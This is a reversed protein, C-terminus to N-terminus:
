TVCMGVLMYMYGKAHRRREGTRCALRSITKFRRDPAGSRCTFSQGLDHVLQPPYVQGTCLVEHASPRSSTPSSLRSTAGHRATATPTTPRVCRGAPPTDRRHGPVPELRHILTTLDQDVQGQRQDIATLRDAVELANRCRAGTIPAAGDVGVTHRANSSVPSRCSRRILVTTTSNRPCPLRETAPSASPGGSRRV